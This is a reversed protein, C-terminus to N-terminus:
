KLSGSKGKRVGDGQSRLRNQGLQGSALFKEILKGFDSAYLVRINVNPYLERFRRVKRNKKTVLAQRLTTIEIFLDQEPLYFDPTFASVVNGETDWELAFTAPEYRWDVGYFDLIRAFEEESPHAFM